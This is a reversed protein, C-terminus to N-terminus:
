STIFTNPNKQTQKNLVAIIYKFCNRCCLNLIPTLKSSNSLFAMIIYLTGFCVTYESFPLIIRFKKENNRLHSSNNGMEQRYHLVIQRFGRTGWFQIPYKGKQRTKEKEKTKTWKRQIEVKTEMHEEKSKYPETKWGVIICLQFLHSKSSM